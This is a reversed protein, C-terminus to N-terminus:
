TKTIKYFKLNNGLFLIPFTGSQKGFSFHKVQIDNYLSPFITMHLVNLFVSMVYM